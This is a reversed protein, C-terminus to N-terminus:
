DTLIKGYTRNQVMEGTMPRWLNSDSVALISYGMKEYLLCAARNRDTTHLHVGKVGLDTLHRHYTELLMRGAGRGRASEALNIHLNAPYRTQPAAPFRNFLAALGYRLTKRGIRYRGLLIRAMGTPYIHLGNWRTFAPLDLCGLVYGVVGGDAEAIFCSSPDFDLYPAVFLDCFLARDDLFYEVAQGFFATDAAIKLVPARDQVSYSRIHIEVNM